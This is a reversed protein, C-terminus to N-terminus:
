GGEREVGDGAVRGDGVGLGWWMPHIRESTSFVEVYQREGM